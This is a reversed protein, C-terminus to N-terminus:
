EEAEKPKKTSLVWDINKGLDGDALWDILRHRSNLLVFGYMTRIFFFAALYRLAVLPSREEAIRECTQCLRRVTEAEEARREHVYLKWLLKERPTSPAPSPVFNAEKFASHATEHLRNYLEGLNISTLSTDKKTSKLHYEFHGKGNAVAKVAAALKTYRLRLMSKKGLVTGCGWRVLSETSIARLLEEKPPAAWVGLVVVKHRLQLMTFSAKTAKAMSVGAIEAKDDDDEEELSKKSAPSRAECEKRQEPTLLPPSFPHADRYTQQVMQRELSMEGQLPLGAVLRQAEAADMNKLVWDDGADADAGGDARRQRGSRDVRYVVHGASSRRWRCCM